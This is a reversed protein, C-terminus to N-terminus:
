KWLNITEEKLITNDYIRGLIEAKEKMADELTKHTEVENWQPEAFTLFIPYGIPFVITLFIRFGIPGSYYREKKQIVYRVSKDGYTQKRIRYKYETDSM